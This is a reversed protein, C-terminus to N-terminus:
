LEETAFIKEVPVEEINALRHALERNYVAGDRGHHVRFHCNPCLAIVTEPSDSGGGAVEHIHHVHLYPESTRSTFPAPDGCGECVGNARRKVYRRIAGSRNYETTTRQKSSSVSDTAAREAQERLSALDTSEKSSGRRSPPTDVERTESGSNLWQDPDLKRVETQGFGTLLYKGDHKEVAGVARFWELHRGVISTPLSYGPYMRRLHKQIEEITRAGSDIAVLITEFGKVHETLAIFILQQDGTETFAKGRTTSTYTDEHREILGLARVFQVYKEITSDSRAATNSRLWAWLDEQDPEEAHVYTLMAQLNALRGDVGGFFRDTTMRREDAM